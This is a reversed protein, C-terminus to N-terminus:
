ARGKVIEAAFLMGKIWDNNAEDPETDVLYASVRAEIQKAFENRMHQIIEQSVTQFDTM